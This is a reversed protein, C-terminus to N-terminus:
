DRLRDRFDRFARKLDDVLASAARAADKGEQQIEHEIDALRPELKSWTTKVDAGALHVKVRIEDRLTRLEELGQKLQEGVNSEKSM